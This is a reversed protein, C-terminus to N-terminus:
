KTGGKNNDNLPNDPYEVETLVVGELTEHEQLKVIGQDVKIAEVLEVSVPAWKSLIKKLLTKRCMEDTFAQWPAKPNDFTKSFKKGHELLKEKSEYLYKSFGNVTEFFAVYGVIPRKEREPLFEMEFEETLPNWKKLEGERVDVVNIKRFQGTRLCLQILGKYGIQLQALTKGEVRYPVVYIFGIENGLPLDLAAAKMCAYLLSNYECELLAKEQSALSLLSALFQRSRAQLIKQVKNQIDPMTLFQSLSMKKVPLKKDM